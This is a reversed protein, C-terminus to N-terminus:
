SRLPIWSVRVKDEPGEVQADRLATVLADRIVLPFESPRVILERILSPVDAGHLGVSPDHKLPIKQVLQPLRNISEVAQKIVPSEELVPLYIVRWEREEAFAPHKLSVSLFILWWFVIASLADKNLHKLSNLNGEMGDLCKDLASGFEADSLYLIPLSYAKLDDTVATFPTNNMVIAVGAGSAYARWMSLRGLEDKPNHESLCGIFTGAPLEVKWRDFADIAETAAGVAIQDCLQILRDRRKSDEAHFVNLMLRVGHEVESYDNMCRVNRLWFEGGSIINVANEASTYHVLVTEGSELMKAREFMDPSLLSHLLLAAQGIDENEQDTM